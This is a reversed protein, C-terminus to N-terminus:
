SWGSCSQGSMQPSIMLCVAYSEGKLLNRYARFSGESFDNMAGVAQNLSKGM